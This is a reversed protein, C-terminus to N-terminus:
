EGLRGRAAAENGTIFRAIDRTDAITITHGEAIAICTGGVAILAQTGSQHEHLICLEEQEIVDWVRVTGDRSSTVLLRDSLTHCYFIADRHGVLKGRPQGTAADWLHIEHVSGTTAVLLNGDGDKVLVARWTYGHTPFDSYREYAQDFPHEALSRGTARWLKVRGVADPGEESAVLWEGDAWESLSTCRHAFGDIRELEPINAGGASRVRWVVLSGDKLVDLLCHADQGLWCIANTAKGEVEPSRREVDPSGANVVALRSTGSTCATRAFAITQRDPAFVAPSFQEDPGAVITTQEGQGLDYIVLRDRRVLKPETTSEGGADTHVPVETWMGVTLKSADSSPEISNACWDRDSDDVLKIRRVPRFDWVRLGDRGVSAVFRGAPSFCVGIHDAVANDHFGRLPHLTALKQDYFLVRGQGIALAIYRGAIHSPSDISRVGWPMPEILQTTNGNAPNWRCLGVNGVVVEAGDESFMVGRCPDDDMPDDVMQWDDLRWIWVGGPREQGNAGAGKASAALRESEASFALDTVEGLGGQRFIQQLGNASSVNFVYVVGTETGAALRHGDPSAAVRTVPGAELELVTSPREAIKGAAREFSWMRIRGDAGGIYVQSGAPSFCVCQAHAREAPIVQSVRGSNSEYVVLRRDKGVTVLWAGDPSYNVATQRGHGSVHYLCPYRRYLEWLAYRTRASDYRLHEKWLMNSANVPDDREVQLRGILVAKIHREVEGTTASHYWYAAFVILGLVACLTFAGFFVRQKHRQLWKGAVYRATNSVASVPANTLFSEIDRTLDAVSQYRQAPDKALAKLLVADLECGLKPNLTVPDTPPEERIRRLLSDLDRTPKVPLQGTVLQFLIVGLSYVDTRTDGSLGAAQEPAMYGPAGMVGEQEPKGPETGPEFARGLGFDLLQPEGDEDVLVNNPKLDRHIVGHQHAHTVAQCVKLFLPLRKTISLSRHECFRDLHEGEILPMTYFYPPESLHTALIPVINAHNFKSVLQVERRFRQLADEDLLLRAQPEKIVVPAKREHDLAKWTTSLQTEAIKGLIEYNPPFPSGSTSTGAGASSPKSLVTEDSPTTAGSVDLEPYARVADRYQRLSEDEKSM